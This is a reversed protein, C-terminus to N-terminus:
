IIALGESEYKSVKKPEMAIILSMANVAAAIADIKEAASAKDPKVNGAPDMAVAFNDAQWRVAPNGGHRFMPKEATGELLVRQLEKTPASLTVLGQRTKVMPAGDSMLDNVLQSSNWPDYAVGQVSFAELDKKMQKGIVNLGAKLVVRALQRGAKTHLYQLEPVLIEIGDITISAKM